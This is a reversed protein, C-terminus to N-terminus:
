LFEVLPRGNANKEAAAVSLCGATSPFPVIRPKAAHRRMRPPQPNGDHQRAATAAPAFPVASCRQGRRWCCRPSPRPRRGLAIGGLELRQEGGLAHRCGHGIGPHGAIGGAAHQRTEIALHRGARMQDDQLRSGVILAIAATGLAGGVNGFDAAAEALRPVLSKIMSLLMSASSGALSNRSSPM